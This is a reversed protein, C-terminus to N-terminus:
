TYYKGTVRVINMFLAVFIERVFYLTFNRLPLWSYVMFLCIMYYLIYVYRMVTVLMKSRWWIFGNFVNSVYVKNYLKKIIKIRKKMLIEKTNSFFILNKKKKLENNLQFIYINRRANIWTKFYMKLLLFM